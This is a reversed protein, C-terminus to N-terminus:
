RQLNIISWGFAPDNTYVLSFSIYPRQDVILFEGGGGDITGMIKETGFPKIQLWPNELVSYDGIVTGDVDTFSIIGGVRGPPLSITFTGGSVNFHINDNYAATFTNTIIDTGNAATYFRTPRGTIATGDSNIVLIDNQNLNGTNLDQIDGAVDGTKGLVYSVTAYDSSQVIPGQMNECGFGGISYNDDRWITAGPLGTTILTTGGVPVDTIQVSVPSELTSQSVNYVFQGILTTSFSANSDILTTNDCLPDDDAKGWIAGGDINNTLSYKAYNITLNDVLASENERANEVEQAVLECATVLGDYKEPYDTGGLAPIYEGYEAM